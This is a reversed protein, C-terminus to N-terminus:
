GFLQTEFVDSQFKDVRNKIFLYGEQSLALTNDIGKDHPVQNMSM